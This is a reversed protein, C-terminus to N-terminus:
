AMAEAAKVSDVIQEFSTVKGDALKWVHAFRAHVPKATAVFTGGYWGITVVTDGDGVFQEPMASFGDWETGLRMFVGNVVEQPGVYTGAYAFGAAETWEIKDDFTSLVAPINGAAFAEYAGRVVEINNMNRGRGRDRIGRDRVTECRLSRNLSEAEFYM